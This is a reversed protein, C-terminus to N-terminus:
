VLLKSKESSIQGFLTSGSSFFTFMVMSNQMNSNTYAGFKPVFRCIRVFHTNRTSLYFLSYELSNQISSNYGQDYYKPNQLKLKVINYYLVLEGYTFRFKINAIKSLKKFDYAKISGNSLQYHLENM